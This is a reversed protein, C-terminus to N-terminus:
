FSFIWWDDCQECLPASMCSHVFQREYAESLRQWCAEIGDVFVNGAGYQGEVDQRCLPVSGDCFIILNRQLALCPTRQLPSLDVVRQSLNKGGFSDPKRIIIRGQFDKWAEYFAFLEKDNEHCRTFQIFIRAKSSLDRLFNLSQLGECPFPLPPKKWELFLNPSVTSIDIIIDVHPLSHAMDIRSPSVGIGRSELIFRRHPRQRIEDILKEWESYVFVESYLGLSVVADPAFTDLMELINQLNEFSMEGKRPLSSIFPGQSEHVTTLEIEVYTPTQRLILPHSEIFRKIEELSSFREGSSLLTELVRKQYLNEPLFSLRYELLRIDTFVINCDYSSLDQGLWEKLSRRFLPTGEPLTRRIFSAVSTDLVEGMLGMPLEAYTFDFLYRRQTAIAEELLHRQILPAYAPVLILQTHPSFGELWRLWEEGQSFSLVSIGEPSLHHERKLFFAESAIGKLRQHTLSLWQLAEHDDGYLPMDFYLLITETNKM